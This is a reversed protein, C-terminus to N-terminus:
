AQPLICKFTFEVVLFNQLDINQDLALNHGFVPNQISTATLWGDQIPNQCFNLWNKGKYVPGKRYFSISILKSTRPINQYFVFLCIPLCICAFVTDGEQFCASSLLHM